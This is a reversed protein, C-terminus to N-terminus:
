KDRKNDSCTYNDLSDCNDYYYTEGNEEYFRYYM